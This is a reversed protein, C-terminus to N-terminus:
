KLNKLIKNVDCGCDWLIMNKEYYWYYRGIMPKHLSDLKPKGDPLRITDNIYVVYSTDKTWGKTKTKADTDFWSITDKVIRTVMDHLVQKKDPSQFLALTNMTDRHIISDTKVPTSASSKGGCSTLTFYVVVTFLFILALTAIKFPEKMTTM